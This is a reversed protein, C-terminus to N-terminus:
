HVRPAFAIAETRAVTWTARGTTARVACNRTCTTAVDIAEVNAAPSNAMATSVNRRVRRANDKLVVTDVGLVSTMTYTQLVSTACSSQFVLFVLAM